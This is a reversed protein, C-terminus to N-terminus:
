TDVVATFGLVDGFGSDRCHAQRSIYFCVRVLPCVHCCAYSLVCILSCLHSCVCSLVSIHSHIYVQSLVCVFCPLIQVDHNVHRHRLGESKAVLAHCKRLGKSWFSGKRRYKEWIGFVLPTRLDPDGFVVYWWWTWLAAGAVFDVCRLVVARIEPAQFVLSLSGWFRPARCWWSVALPPCCGSPVVTRRTKCLRFASRLDRSSSKTRCLDCAPSSM